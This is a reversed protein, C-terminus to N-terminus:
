RRPWRHRDRRRRGATTAAEVWAQDGDDHREAAQHARRLAREDREPRPELVVEACGCAPECRRRESEPQDLEDRRGAAHAQGVLPAFAATDREAGGHHDRGPDEHESRPLSVQRDPEGQEPEVDESELERDHAREREGRVEHRAARAGPDAKEETGARQPPRGGVHQRRLEVLPGPDAGREQEAGREGRGADDGEEGARGLPALSSGSSLGPRARAGDSRVVTDLRLSASDLSVMLVREAGPLVPRVALRYTVGDEEFFSLQNAAEFVAQVDSAPVALCSTADALRIGTEAPWPQVVPLPEETYNAVDDPVALVDYETPTFLEGGTLGGAIAQAAEVFTQLALRDPNTETEFGLAYAEHVYEAGGASLTVITSGVDTVQPADATYDPPPALLGAEDAAALIAQISAEDIPLVEIAPLLPGPFIAIQAGPRFARGDGAVLLTPTRQFAFEPTTFAGVAADIRM